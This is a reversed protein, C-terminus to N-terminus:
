GRKGKQASPASLFDVAAAVLEQFDWPPMRSIEDDLLVPETVRPLLAIFTNVDADLVARLSLGRLTGTQMMVDTITVKTIEKEGRKIPTKLAITKAM